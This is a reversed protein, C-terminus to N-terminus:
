RRKRRKHRRVAELHADDGPVAWAAPAGALSAGAACFGVAIALRRLRPASM